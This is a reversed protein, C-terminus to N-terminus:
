AAGDGDDRQRRRAAQADNDGGPRTGSGDCGPCTVTTPQGGSGDILRGTGRCPSCREPGDEPRPDDPV